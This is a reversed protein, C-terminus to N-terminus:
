DDDPHAWEGLVDLKVARDAQYPRAQAGGALGLWIAGATALFVGVRKVGIGGVLDLFPGGSLKSRRRVLDHASTHLSLAAAEVTLCAPHVPSGLFDAWNGARRSICEAGLSPRQLTRHSRDRRHAHLRRLLQRRQSEASRPTATRTSSTPRESCPAPPWHSRQSGLLVAMGSM